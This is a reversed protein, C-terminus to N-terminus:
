QKIFKGSITKNGSGSVEYIYMGPELNHTQSHLCNGNVTHKQDLRARGQMDTIRYRVTEGQDFGELSIFLEDKVPNPWAHGKIRGPSLYSVHTYLTMDEPMVKWIMIDTKNGDYPINYRMAWVFCGGDMTSQTGFTIYYHGDGLTKYGRLNLDKDVIYLFVENPVSYNLNNYSQCGSVYITTDNYYSLGDYVSIYEITDAHNLDIVKHYKASTDVVSIRIMYENSIGMPQETHSQAMLFSTDSLWHKGEFKSSNEDRIRTVKLIELNSDLFMLEGATMPLYGDSTLMFNNSNPIKSLQFPNAHFMTEYIRSKLTDGHITFKYFAFDTRATPGEYYIPALALVLSGDNDQLISNHISIRSYKEPLAYTKCSTINMATDLVMVMMESSEEGYASQKKGLVFYDGNPLIKINFLNVITDPLIIKRTQYSGDPKIKLMLGAGSNDFVDTAGVFITNGYSDNESALLYEGGPTEYLIQFSTQSFANKGLTFFFVLFLITLTPKSRM